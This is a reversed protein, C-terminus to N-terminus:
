DEFVEHLVAGTAGTPAKIGLYAAITPALDITEVRRVVRKPAIGPRSLIIPVYTDYAWPAGHSSAVFLGDFDAVFWHPDFVIFIDGSRDPHFNAAVARNVRTDGVLGNRFETAGVALAIGPLKVLEESVTREVELPDLDREEILAKNLYLYPQSFNLILDKSAGFDAQLRVFGPETDIRKFDFYQAEIGIEALSGPTEAGGHDASLVVLVNDLGVREDLFSLFEGLRKDLQKLNDEAELSSPGFMHGVYDTSSLSIALYDPIDDQGIDEAEILSKAFDLTLADGAPSVTLLTTYYDGDVPGFNHPFVRGFGGLDTEWMQDDRDAFSYNEEPLLLSWDKNAYAQVKGSANWVEVWGPYDDRYYTSTVFSADSKSFWYAQGAHGAMSIAGRDKISVGFIKAEPGYHLAIEDSVTSTIISRPSRGDTTAARQTPDIETADDVGSAGVLPYDADQVNYFQEGTVRDFWLNAVMGHVAPDAGTSLTTHGVITETNAHRHHADAYHVGNSMLRRFGDEGMGKEFRQILDGRLQDVTLQLVLRPADQGVAPFAILGFVIPVACRLM